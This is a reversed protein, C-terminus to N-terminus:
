LSIDGFINDFFSIIIIQTPVYGTFLEGSGHICKVYDADLWFRRM